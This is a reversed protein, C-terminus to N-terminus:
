SSLATSSLIKFAVPHRFTHSHFRNYPANFLFSTCLVLTCITYSIILSPQGKSFKKILPIFSLSNSWFAIIRFSIAGYRSLGSITAIRLVAHRRISCPSSSVTNIKTEDEKFTGPSNSFYIVIKSSSYRVSLSIRSSIMSKMCTFGTPDTYSPVISFNTVANLPNDSRSISVIRERANRSSPVSESSAGFRTRSCFRCTISFAPIRSIIGRFSPISSIPPRFLRFVHILFLALIKFSIFRAASNPTSSGLPTRIAPTGPHPFDNFAFADAFSIPTGRRFNSIPRSIPFYTPSDSLLIRM